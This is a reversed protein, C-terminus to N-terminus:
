GGGGYSTSGASTTTTGTNNGCKASVLTQSDKDLCINKSVWAAACRDSDYDGLYLSNDGKIKSTALAKATATLNDVKNLALYGSDTLGNGITTHKYGIHEFPLNGQLEYKIALYAEVKQRNDADHAENFLTFQGFRGDFSNSNSNNITNNTGDHGITIALNTAALTSVQALTTSSAVQVGNMYLSSSSNELDGVWSFIYWGSFATTTAVTALTTTTASNSSNNGQIVAEITYNSGSKVMVLSLKASTSGNGGATFLTMRALTLDEPKVACYASWKTLAVQHGASGATTLGHTQNFFLSFRADGTGLEYTPKHSSNSNHPSAPSGFPTSYWKELTKLGAASTSLTMKGDENNASDYNTVLFQSLSASDQDSYKKDGYTGEPYKNDVKKAKEDATTDIKKDPYKLNDAGIPPCIYKKQMIPLEGCINEKFKIVCLDGMGSFSKPNATGTHPVSAIDTFSGTASVTVVSYGDSSYRTPSLPLGAANPKDQHFHHAFEWGKFDEYVSNAPYSIKEIESSGNRARISFSAYKFPKMTNYKILMTRPNIIQTHLMYDSYTILSASDEAYNDSYESTKPGVALSKSSTNAIDVSVGLPAYYSSFAGNHESLASNHGSLIEVYRGKSWLPMPTMFLKATVLKGGDMTIPAFRDCNELSPKGYLSEVGGVTKFNHSLISIKKHGPLVYFNNYTEATIATLRAGTEADFVECMTFGDGPLVKVMPSIALSDTSTYAKCFDLTSWSWSVYSLAETLNKNDSTVRLELPVFSAGNITHQVENKYLDSTKINHLDFFYEAWSRFTHPKSSYFNTGDVFRNQYRLMSAKMSDSYKVDMNGMEGDVDQTFTITDNTVFTTSVASGILLASASSDMYTKLAALTLALTAQKEIATFSGVLSAGTTAGGNAVFKFSTRNKKADNLIFYSNDAPLASFVLELKAGLNPHIDIRDGFGVLSFAKANEGLTEKTEYDINGCIDPCLDSKTSTCISNQCYAPVVKHFNPFEDFTYSNGHHMETTVYTYSSSSSVFCWDWNTTPPSRWDTALADKNKGPLGYFRMRASNYLAVIDAVDFKGDLNADDIYGKYDRTLFGDLILRKQEDSLASGGVADQYKDLWKIIAKYSVQWLYDYKSKERNYGVDLGNHLAKDIFGALESRYYAIYGSGRLDSEYSEYNKPISALLGSYHGYYISGYSAHKPGHLEQNTVVRKNLIKLGEWEVLLRVSSADRIPEGGMANATWWYGGSRVVPGTWERGVEYLTPNSIQDKNQTKVSDLSEAIYFAKTPCGCTTKPANSVSIRIVHTPESSPQLSDLQQAEAYFGDDFINYGKTYAPSGLAQYSIVRISKDYGFRDDCVKHATDWGSAKLRPNTLVSFMSPSASSFKNFGIDFQFGSVTTNNRIAIDIIMSGTGSDQEPSGELEDCDSADVITGGGGIAGGLNNGDGMKSGAKGHYGQDGDHCEVNLIEIDAACSLQSPKTPISTDIDDCCNKPVINPLNTIELSGSSEIVAHYLKFISLLDGANIDDDKDYDCSALAYSALSPTLNNSSLLWMLTFGIQGLLLQTWQGSNLNAGSGGTITNYLPTEVLNLSSHVFENKFGKVHSTSFNGELCPTREATDEASVVILYCFTSFSTTAPCATGPEKQVFCLSPQSTPIPSGDYSMPTISVMKNYAATTVSGTKTSYIGIPCVIASDPVDVKFSLASLECPSKYSVKLINYEANSSVKALTLLNDFYNLNDSLDKDALVLPSGEFLESFDATAAYNLTRSEGSAGVKLFSRLGATSKICDVAEVKVDLDCGDLVGKLGNDKGALTGLASTDVQAGSIYKGNNITLTM